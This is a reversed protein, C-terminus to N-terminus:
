KLVMEKEWKEFIIESVLVRLRTFGVFEKTFRQWKELRSMAEYIEQLGDLSKDRLDKEWDKLDKEWDRRDKAWDRLDKAWDKLDKEWVEVNKMVNTM